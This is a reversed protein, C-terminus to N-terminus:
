CLLESDDRDSGTDLSPFRLSFAAVAMLAATEVRLITNALTMIRFGSDLARAVEVPSFDGEPGILIMAKECGKLADMIYIKECSCEGCYGILKVYASDSASIPSSTSGLGSLSSLVSASGSSHVSASNSASSSEAVSSSNILDSFRTLSNFKPIRAKGSQKAASVLINEIRQPKFLEKRESHETVIPTIEDVGIEVAKELFWEYRDSNKTLAVCIHLHSRSDKEFTESSEIRLKVNRGVAEVIEGTYITGSGDMVKIKDGITNRMVKICHRSETEDLM